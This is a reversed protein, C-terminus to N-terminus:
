RAWRGRRGSVPKSNAGKPNQVEAKATPGAPAGAGAPRGVMAFAPNESGQSFPKDVIITPKTVTTPVIGPNGAIGGDGKAKRALYDINSREHWFEHGERAAWYCFVSLPVSAIVQGLGEITRHEIRRNFDEIKRTEAEALVQKARDGRLLDKYLDELLEAESLNSPMVLGPGEEDLLESEDLEEGDISLLDDLDEIEDITEM